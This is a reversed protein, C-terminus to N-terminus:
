KSFFCYMHLLLSIIILVLTAINKGKGYKTDDFPIGNKKLEGGKIGLLIIAILLFIPGLISCISKVDGGASYLGFKNSMCSLGCLLSLVSFAIGADTVKEYNVEMKAM